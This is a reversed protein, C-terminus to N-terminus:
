LPVGPTRRAVTACKCRINFIKWKVTGLPLRLTEAIEAYSLGEAYRLVVIQQEESSLLVFYSELDIRAHLRTEPDRGHVGMGDLAEFSVVDVDRQRKERHQLLCNRAIKFFWGYFLSPDRLTGIRRYVAFLVDQALEKGSELDTGRLLFYRILRRYLIEFVAGFAEETRAHVFQEIVGQESRGCAVSM